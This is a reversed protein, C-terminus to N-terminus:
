CLGCLAGFCYMVGRRRIGWSGIGWSVLFTESDVGLYGFLASKETMGIDNGTLSKLKVKGLGPFEIEELSMKPGFIALAAVALLAV